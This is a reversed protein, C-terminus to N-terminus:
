RCLQNCSEIIRDLFNQNWNALHHALGQAPKHLSLVQQQAQSLNEATPKLLMKAVGLRQLAAGNLQQEIHRPLILQPIGALLCAISTTLGGHHIAISQDVLAAQLPQFRSELALTDAVLDYAPYERSLYSWPSSNLANSKVLPAVHVGVYQTTPSQAAPGAFRSARYIDLEPISFIFSCDGNLAAGLSTELPVLQRITENVRRQREASEPPLSSRFAPFVDVPPPVAFHSGIVITPV